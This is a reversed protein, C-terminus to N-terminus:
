HFLIIILAYLTVGSTWSDIRDLVGGHGPLFVGSDKLDANRKFMSMTLDGIVSLFFIGTGATILRLISKTDFNDFLLYGGVITVIVALIWGGLAGERTKGPSVKPALKNKGLTKGTFYAGVDAGWIIILLFLVYWLSLESKLLYDFAAYSPILAFVGALLTFPKSFEIPYRLIQIFSFIWFILGIVLLGRLGDLPLFDTAIMLMMSALWITYVSRLMPHNPKIFSSWEWAGVCWLLLVIWRLSEKPLFYIAIALIALAALASIVRQKLM